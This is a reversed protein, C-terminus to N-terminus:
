DKDFDVPLPVPRSPTMPELDEQPALTLTVGEPSPTELTEDEEQGRCSDRVSPLWYSSAASLAGQAGTLWGGPLCPLEPKFM